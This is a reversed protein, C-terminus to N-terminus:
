FLKKYKLDFITYHEIIWSLKSKWEFKGGESDMLNRRRRNAKVYIEMVNEEEETLM